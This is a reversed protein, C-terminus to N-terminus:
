AEVAQPEGVAAQQRATAIQRAVLLENALRELQKADCGELHPELVSPDAASEKKKLVRRVDSAIAAAAEELPWGEYVSAMTRLEYALGSPLHGCRLLDAFESLRGDLKATNNAGSPAWQSRVTIPAGGRKHLGIALGNRDPSKAEAEAARGYDLLIGLDELFHAIAIGVSLTPSRNEGDAYEALLEGFEDHLERACELCQDVPVFALVDDGGAYILAGNHKQVIAKAQSAFDALTHSFKQHASPSELRALTQGMRDGDAVLVALYPNAEPLKRLESRLLGIKKQLEERQADDYPAVEELWEHFRSPYVATGEFPFDRFQPYVQEALRHLGPVNKYIQNCIQRLCDIQGQEVRGRIWPDAAIRAVSPFPRTGAALRKVVGVVDLQEGDRIRLKARNRALWESRKKLVSERQGDLSSKPVGERGQAPLFDRFNKRGALLRMVRRRDEAYHDDGRAEVWAAYFEIVDDVQTRWIEEDIAGEAEGHADDAFQRWRDQAVQRADQAVARIDESTVEALIVNAVNFDSDRRLDAGPHPFILQARQNDRLWLAVAKSIESLLYSGFWLDRTRRAAAIFEQVPGISIALLYSM